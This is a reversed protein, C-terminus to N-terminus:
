QIIYNGYQNKSLTIIHKKIENLLPRARRRNVKELLLQIVRSGYPHMSLNFTNEAIEDAVFGIEKPNLCQIMKQVVHNGNQDYVFKLISGALQQAVLQKHKYAACELIKQVVRCGYMGMSLSLISSELTEVVASILEDCDLELYKQAVYNGFMDNCIAIFDPKLHTFTDWLWDSSALTLHEQLFRSGEQDTVFAFFMGKQTLINQAFWVNFMQFTSSKRIEENQIRNCSNKTTPTIAKDLTIEEKATKQKCMSALRRMDKASWSQRQNNFTRLNTDKWSNRMRNKRSQKGRNKRQPRRSHCDHNNSKGCHKISGLKVLVDKCSHTHLNTTQVDTMATESLEKSPSISMSRSVSISLSSDGSNVRFSIDCPQHSSDETVDNMRNWKIENKPESGFAQSYKASAFLCTSDNSESNSLDCLSKPEANPCWMSTPTAGGDLGLNKFEGAINGISDFFGDINLFTSKVPTLLMPNKMMGSNSSAKGVSPLDPSCSTKKSTPL